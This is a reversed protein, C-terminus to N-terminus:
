SHNFFYIITLDMNVFAIFIVLYNQIIALSSLRCFILTYKNLNMQQYELTWFFLIICIFYFGIPGPVLKLLFIQTCAPNSSAVNLDVLADTQWSSFGLYSPYDCLYRLFSHLFRVWYNKPVRSKANLNTPRNSLSFCFDSLGNDTINM